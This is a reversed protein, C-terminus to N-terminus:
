PGTTPERPVRPTNAAAGVAAAALVALVIQQVEVPDIRRDTWASTLVAAGAALVATVFKAWPQAPTNAVLYVGAAGVGVVLVNWRGPGDWGDATFLAATSGAVAILIYLIAKAASM